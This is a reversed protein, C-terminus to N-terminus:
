QKNVAQLREVQKTLQKWEEHIRKGDRNLRDALAKWSKMTKDGSTSDPPTVAVPLGAWADELQQRLQERDQELEKILNHLNLAKNTAKTQWDILEEKEDKM